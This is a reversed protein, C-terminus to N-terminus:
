NRGWNDKDKKELSLHMCVLGKYVRLYRSALECHYLTDSGKHERIARIHRRVYTNLSLM